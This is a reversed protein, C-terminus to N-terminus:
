FVPKKLAFFVKDFFYEKIQFYWLRHVGRTLIIRRKRM